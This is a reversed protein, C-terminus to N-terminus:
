KQRLFWWTLALVALVVGAWVAKKVWSPQEVKTASPQPASAAASGAFRATNPILITQEAADEHGAPE